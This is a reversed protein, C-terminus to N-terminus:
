GSAQSGDCACLQQGAVRRFTLNLRSRAAMGPNRFIMPGAQYLGKKDYGYVEIFPGSDTTIGQSKWAYTLRCKSLPDVTFIQYIHLFDINERGNFNVRM